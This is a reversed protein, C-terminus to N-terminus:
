PVSSPCKSMGVTGMKALFPTQDCLRNYPHSRCQLRLPTMITMSAEYTSKLERSHPQSALNAELKMSKHATRLWVKTVCKAGEYTFCIRNIRAANDEFLSTQSRHQTASDAGLHNSSFAQSSRSPSAYLTPESVPLPGSELLRPRGRAGRAKGGIVM